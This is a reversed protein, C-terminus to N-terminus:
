DLRGSVSFRLRGRRQAAFYAFLFAAGTEAPRSKMKDVRNAKPWGTAGPANAPGVRERKRASRSKQGQCNRKGNGKGQRTAATDPRGGVIRDRGGTGSRPRATTALGEMHFHHGTISRCAPPNVNSNRPASFRRRLRCVFPRFRGASARATRGIPARLKGAGDYTLTIVHSVALRRRHRTRCHRTAVSRSGGVLGQV